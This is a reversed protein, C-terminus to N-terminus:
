FALLATLMASRPAGPQYRTGGNNLTNIYFKDFLNYMNLQLSVNKTAQYSVM